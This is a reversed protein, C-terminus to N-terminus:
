PFPQMLVFSTGERRLVGADVLDDLIAEIIEVTSGDKNVYDVWSAMTKLRDTTPWPGRTNLGEKTLAALVLDQPSPRGGFRKTAKDVAYHTVGLRACVEEATVGPIGYLRAVRRLQDDDYKRVAGDEISDPSATWRSMVGVGDGSPLCGRGRSVAAATTTPLRM